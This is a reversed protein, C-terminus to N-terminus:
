YYLIAKFSCFINPLNRCLLFCAFILEVNELSALGGEDLARRAEDCLYCPSSLYNYLM